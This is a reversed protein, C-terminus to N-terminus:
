ESLREVREIAYRIAQAAYEVPQEVTFWHLADDLDFGNLECGVNSLMSDLDAKVDAITEANRLASSEEYITDITYM